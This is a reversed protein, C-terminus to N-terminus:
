GGKRRARRQRKAQDRGEKYELVDSRCYVFTTGVRKGPPGQGHMRGKRLTDEKIGIIAAAEATTLIDQLSITSRRGVTKATSVVPTM